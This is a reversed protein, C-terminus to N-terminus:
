LMSLLIWTAMVLIKLFGWLRGEGRTGVVIDLDGDSDLDVPESLQPISYRGLEM